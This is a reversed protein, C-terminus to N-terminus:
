AESTESPQFNRKNTSKRFVEIQVSILAVGMKHSRIAVIQGDGSVETRFNKKSNM